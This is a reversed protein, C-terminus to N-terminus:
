AMAPASGGTLVSQMTSSCDDICSKVGEAITQTKEMIKEVQETDMDQAAQIRMLIADLLKADAKIDTLQKEYVASVINVSSSAVQTLGSAVSTGTSMVQQFKSLQNVKTTMDAVKSIDSVSKAAGAGSLIGGVVGIGMSFVMGSIAAAQENGGTAKAAEAFGNQLSLKGDSATSMITEATSAILLGAAAISLPNPAIIASAVAAVAAVAQIVCSIISFVNKLKDLIGQKEAKDAQEQLKEIREENIEKRQEAHAQLTAVGSSVAEKREDMGLMSMIAEDCLGMVVSMPISNDPSELTPMDGLSATGKAASPINQLGSGVADSSKYKDVIDQVQSTATRLDTNLFNGM